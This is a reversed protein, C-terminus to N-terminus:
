ERPTEPRGRLSCSKLWTMPLYAWLSLSPCGRCHCGGIGRLRNRSRGLGLRGQTYAALHVGAQAYDEVLGEDRLRPRESPGLAGGCYGGQSLRLFDVGLAALETGLPSSPRGKVLGRRQLLTAVQGSEEWLRRYSWRLYRFAPKFFIANQSGHREMTERLFDVLNPGTPASKAATM